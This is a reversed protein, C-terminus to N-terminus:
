ITQHFYHRCERFLKISRARKDDPCKRNPVWTFGSQKEEDGDHWRVIAVGDRHMFQLPQMSPNRPKIDLVFGCDSTLKSLIHSKISQSLNKMQQSGCFLTKSFPDTIGM